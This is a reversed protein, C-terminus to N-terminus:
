GALCSRLGEALNRMLMGYAAPGPPLAAGLPDLVGRRARTGEILTDVLKPEFQPEAFVCVTGLAMIRARIEEVRQASVAIEPNVTVSGVVSLGYRAELYQYADHFVIIPRGRLPALTARLKNGLDRLQADLKTWNARYIPARPPDQACLADRIAAAIVEANTLDLWIHGDYQQPKGATAPKDTDPEFPGGRRYALRTLRPLDILTLIKAHSPLSQLPRVLYDEMVPGVWVVLDADALAAAQSPRLAYAHESSAGQVILVPDAVNEMIAAALAHIPKLSVVVKPAPEAAWAGRAILVFALFAWVEIRRRM